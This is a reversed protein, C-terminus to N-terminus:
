PDNPSEKVYSDPSLERLYGVCLNLDEVVKNAKTASQILRVATAPHLRCRLSATPDSIGTQPVRGEGSGSTGAGTECSSVDVWMGDTLPDATISPNLVRGLAQAAENKLKELNNTWNRNLKAIQKKAEDEVRRAHEASELLAKANAEAILKRENAWAQKDESHLRQAETLQQNVQAIIKQDAESTKVEGYHMGGFFAGLLLSLFIGIKVYQVGPIASIFSSISM